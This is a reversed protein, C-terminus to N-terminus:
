RPSRVAPPASGASASPSVSISVTRGSGEANASVGFFKLSGSPTTEIYGLLTQDGAKAEWGSLWALTLTGPLEGDVLSPAQGGPAIYTLQCNGCGLGLSLGALSLDVNALLYVPIRTTGSNSQAAGFLLVGEASLSSEQLVGLAAVGSASPCSEGRAARTPRTTDINTVRKLITILDLTNLLGDGGRTGPTDVPFADMADFRDSCSAPVSGPLQTVARLMAILDLTNLADDGFGPAIDSSFPFVDGVLYGAV